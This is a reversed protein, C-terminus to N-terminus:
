VRSILCARTTGNLEAWTSEKPRSMIERSMVRLCPSTDRALSGSAAYADYPAGYCVQHLEGNSSAAARNVEFGEDTLSPTPRSISTGANPRSVSAGAAVGVDVEEAGGLDKVTDDTDPPRPLSAGPQAVVGLGYSRLPHSPDVVGPEMTLLRKDSMFGTMSLSIADGQDVVDFAGNKPLVGTGFTDRATAAESELKAGAPDRILADTTERSIDKAQKSDEAFDDMVRGHVSCIHTIMSNRDSSLYGDVFRHSSRIETCADLFRDHFDSISLDNVDSGYPNELEKAVENICWVGQFLLFSAFPAGFLSDTFHAMYVPILCSFAVLLIALLQAYPFPFPIDSMKLANNYALMGSSLEQYIRSQIPPAVCIDGAMEALERVIWYMVINVRDTSKLLCHAEAESPLGDVSYTITDTACENGQIDIVQLATESDRSSRMTFQPLNKAGSHGLNEHRLQYRTSIRKQWKAVSSRAEMRQLDGHTIRHTVLASMISFHKEFMKLHVRMRAIKENGEKSRKALEKDITVHTFACMQTYADAWKSYMTTLQTVAEWYRVWALNTRFVVAFGVIGGIAMIGYTNPIHPALVSETEKLIQVVLGALACLVGLIITDNRFFISGHRTFFIRAFSQNNYLLM